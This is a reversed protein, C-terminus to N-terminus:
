QKRLKHHLYFSRKFLRKINIYWSFTGVLCTQLSLIATKQDSISIYDLSQRRIYYPNSSLRFLGEQGCISAVYGCSKLIEIMTPPTQGFPFCFIKISKSLGQELITKSQQAEYRMDDIDFSNPENHSCGHSQIDIGHSDLEKMQDWTLITLPELDYDSYWWAKEGIYNTPIFVTATFGFQSLIPWAAKYFNQLGDDFTLVVSKEPLKTTFKYRLLQPITITNWGQEKLHAMQLFFIQPSISLYSNSNDISHYTIIPVGIQKWFNAAILCVKLGTVKLM